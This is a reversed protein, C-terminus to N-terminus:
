DPNTTSGSGSGSGSSPPYVGVPAGVPELAKFNNTTMGGAYNITTMHNYKGHPGSRAGM